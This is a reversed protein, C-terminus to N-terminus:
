ALLERYEDPLQALMDSVEGPEVLEELVSMVARVDDLAEIPTIEARAAVKDLFTRADFGVAPEGPALLLGGLEDPLSVALDEAEGRSIREGLTTLTAHTVARARDPALKGRRAVEAIFEDYGLEPEPAGTDRRLRSPSPPPERGLLVYDGPLEAVIDEFEGEGVAERVVALTARAYDGALPEALDTREAVRRVFEHADFPEPPAPYRLPGELERPLLAALDGRAKPSIREALTALVALAVTAAREDSTGTRRSLREIIAAYEV